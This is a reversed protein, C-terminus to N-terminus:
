LKPGPIHQAPQTSSKQRPAGNALLAAPAEELQDLLAQPLQVAKMVGDSNCAACVVVLRGQAIEQSVDGNMKRFRFQYTLTRTSLKEVLLHVLVEDEFRVPAQYDCEAHVRPLCVDMGCNSLVVSLGLSRMFATETSEMFRFFNSFHMIGAMDTDSFEVRRIHKFEYPMSSSLRRKQAGCFRPGM